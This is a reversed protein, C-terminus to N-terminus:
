TNKLGYRRKIADCDFKNGSCSLKKLALNKSVDLSISQNDSCNLQILGYAGSINLSTLKNKQCKVGLLYSAGSCVFRHIPPYLLANLRM